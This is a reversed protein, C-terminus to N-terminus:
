KESFPEKASSKETVLIKNQSFSINKEKKVPLVM